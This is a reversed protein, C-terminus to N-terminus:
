RSGFHQAAHALLGLAFFALIFTVALETNSLYRMIDTHSRWSPVSFPLLIMCVFWLAVLAATTLWISKLNLGMSFSVAAMPGAVIFHTLFEHPATSFFFRILDHMRM